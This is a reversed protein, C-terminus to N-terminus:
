YCCGAQSNRASDCWEIMYSFLRSNNQQTIEQILSSKLSMITRATQLPWPDSDSMDAVDAFEHEAPQHRNKRKRSDTCHSAAAAQRAKVFFSEESVEALLAEHMKELVANEQRQTQPPLLRFMGELILLFSHVRACTAEPPIGKYAQFAGSTHRMYCDGYHFRLYTNGEMIWLLMAHQLITLDVQRLFLVSLAAVLLRVGKDSLGQAQQRVVDMYTAVTNLITDKDIYSDPQM